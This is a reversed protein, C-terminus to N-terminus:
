QSIKKLSNYMIKELPNTPEWTDWTDYAENIANMQEDDGQYRTFTDEVGEVEEPLEEEDSDSEYAEPIISGKDEGVKNMICYRTAYEVDQGTMIDRNCAKAYKAAFIVSKEMVPQMFDICTQIIEEEM